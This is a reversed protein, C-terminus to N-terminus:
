LTCGYKLWDMAFQSCDGWAEIDCIDHNADYGRISYKWRKTKKDSMFLEVRQATSGDLALVVGALSDWDRLAPVESAEFGDKEEINASSEVPTSPRVPTPMPMSPGVAQADIGKKRNITNSM